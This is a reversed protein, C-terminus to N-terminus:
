PPIASGGSGSGDVVPDTGSIACCNFWNGGTGGGTGGGGGDGGPSNGGGGTGGGGGGGGGGWGSGGGDGTSSGNGIVGSTGNIQNAEFFQRFKLSIDLSHFTNPSDFGVVVRHQDRADTLRISQVIAPIDYTSGPNKWNRIRVISGMPYSSICTAPPVYLSISGYVRKRSLFAFLADAYGQLSSTDDRIVDGDINTYKFFRQDWLETHKDYGLGTDEVVVQLEERGTYLLWVDSNTPINGVPWYCYCLSGTVNTWQDADPASPSVGDFYYGTRFVLQKQVTFYNKEYQAPTGLDVTPLPEDPYNPYLNPEPRVSGFDDYIGNTFMVFKTGNSISGSYYGGDIPFGIPGADWGYALSFVWMSREASVYRPPSVSDDVSLRLDVIEAPVQYKRYADRNAARQSTPFWAHSSNLDPVVYWVGGGPLPLFKEVKGPSTESDRLIVPDAYSTFLGDNSEDWGATAQDRRETMDGWGHLTLKDYSQSIDISIDIAEVNPSYGDSAGDKRAIVAVNTTGTTKSLDYFRLTGGETSTGSTTAPDYWWALTPVEAAISELLGLWTKGKTQFNYIVLAQTDAPVNSWDFAGIPKGVGVVSAFETEIISRIGYGVPYPYINADRSRNYWENVMAIPNTALYETVDAAMYEISDNGGADLRRTAPLTKGVFVIVGGLTYKVETKAPLPDSDVLDSSVRFRCTSARKMAHEVEDVIYSDSNIEIM